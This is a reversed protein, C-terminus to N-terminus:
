RRGPGRIAPLARVDDQGEDGEVGRAEFRAASEVTHGSVPSLPRWVHTISYPGVRLRVHGNGTGRGREALERRWNWVRVDGSVSSALAM